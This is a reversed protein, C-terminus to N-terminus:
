HTLYKDLEDEEIELDYIHIFNSNSSIIHDKFRDDLRIIAWRKFDKIISSKTPYKYKKSIIVGTPIKDGCSLYLVGKYRPNLYFKITVIKM